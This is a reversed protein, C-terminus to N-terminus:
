DARDRGGATGARCGTQRVRLLAEVKDKPTLNNWEEREMEPQETAKMAAQIEAM